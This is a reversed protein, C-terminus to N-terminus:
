KRVQTGREDRSGKRRLAGAIGVMPILLVLCLLVLYPLITQLAPLVPNQNLVTSRWRAELSSLSIGLARETGRRCDVGDAYSVALDILGASGYTEQLYNTFSRSEAYALFARGAEAPFSACLEHLPIVSNREVAAALVRDYDPNPYIEVLAAMGERLWTPLNVYGPGVRRYLMVHMLEHPIRQEMRIAQEAGPEIVVRVLGLAPNAHGAAWDEGGPTQAARLDESNAYIFIDVPQGLDPAMFRSISEMGAWAADLAAEGFRTDSDYWHVKLAGLELTQWDFGNDAQPTTMLTAIMLWTLFSIHFGLRM